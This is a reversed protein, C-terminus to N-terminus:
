RCAGSPVNVPQPQDFLLEAARRRIDALLQALEDREGVGLGFPERDGIRAQRDLLAVGVLAFIHPRHFLGAAREHALTKQQDLIVVM